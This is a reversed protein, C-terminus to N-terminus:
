LTVLTVVIYITICGSCYYLTKYVVCGGGRVQVDPVLLTRLLVSYDESQLTQEISIHNHENLCLNAVMELGSLFLPPTLLSM